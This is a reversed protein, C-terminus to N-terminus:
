KLLNDIFGSFTCFAAFELLIEPLFTSLRSTHCVYNSSEYSHVTFTTRYMMCTIDLTLSGTKFKCLFQVQTKLNTTSLYQTLNLYILM